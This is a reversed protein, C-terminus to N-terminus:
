KELYVFVLEDDIEKRDFIRYGLSEYLRINDKSRTSTFLEYRKGPFCKEIETLLMSGYGKRRHDPHVMLKGIYATGNKEFARVSGIIKDGETMKLIVGKDFEEKLEDPTEKLPPINKNGFLAAESQYALYQLELIERLDSEEATQINM